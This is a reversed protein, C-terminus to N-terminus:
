LRIRVATGADGFILVPFFRPYPIYIIIGPTPLSKIPAV